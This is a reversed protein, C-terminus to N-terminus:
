TARSRHKNCHKNRHKNRLTVYDDEHCRRCPARVEFAEVQRKAAVDGKDAKAAVDSLKHVILDFPGQPELDQDLNLRVARLGKSECLECFADFSLKQSKKDSWWFGVSGWAADQEGNLMDRDLKTM